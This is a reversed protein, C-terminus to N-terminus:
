AEALLIEALYHILEFLQEDLFGDLETMAVLELRSLKEPDGPLPKVFFQMLVEPSIVIGVSGWTRRVLYGQGSYGLM